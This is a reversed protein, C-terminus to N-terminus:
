ENCVLNCYTTKKYCVSAATFKNAEDISNIMALTNAKGNWTSTAGIAIDTTNWAIDTAEDSGQVYLKKEFKWM